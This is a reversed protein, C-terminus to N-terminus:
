STFYISFILYISCWNDILVYICVVGESPIKTNQRVESKDNESESEAQQDSDARRQSDKCQQNQTVKSSNIESKSLVGYTSFTRKSYHLICHVQETHFNIRSVLLSYNLCRSAFNSTHVVRTTFKDQASELRNLGTKTSYNCINVLPKRRPNNSDILFTGFVLTARENSSLCRYVGPVASPPCPRMSAAM